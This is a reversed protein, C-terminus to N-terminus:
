LLGYSKALAFLSIIIPIIRWIWEEIKENRKYAEILKYNQLAKKGRPTIRIKHISFDEDLYSMNNLYYSPSLTNQLSIVPNDHMLLLDIRLNTAAIDQHFAKRIDNKIVADNKKVFDLIAYDLKELNTEDM